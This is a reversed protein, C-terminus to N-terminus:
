DKTIEIEEYQCSDKLFDNFDPDLIPRPQFVDKEEIIIVNLQPQVQETEAVVANFFLFSFLAFPILKM